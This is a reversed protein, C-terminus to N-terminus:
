WRIGSLTLPASVPSRSSNMRRPPFRPRLVEWPICYRSWSAAVCPSGRSGRAAILRRGRAGRRRRARDGRHHRPFWDSLLAVCARAAPTRTTSTGASRRASRGSTRSSRSARTHSKAAMTKCRAPRWWTSGSARRARPRPRPLPRLVRAGGQGRGDLRLGALRRDRRLRPRGGRRGRGDAAAGGDRAVEALVGLRAGGEGRRGVRHRPLQRRARGAPRVRDLPGRRGPRRRARTVRDALADLHEANTVDLELM